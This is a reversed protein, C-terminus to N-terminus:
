ALSRRLRRLACKQGTGWIRMISIIRLRWRHAERRHWFRGESSVRVRRASHRVGLWEPLLRQQQRLHVGEGPRSSGLLCHRVGRQQHLYHWRRQGPARTSLAHRHQAPHLPVPPLLHRQEPVRGQQAAPVGREQEDRATGTGRFCTGSCCQEPKKRPKGDAKCEDARAERQGLRSVGWPSPVPWAACCRGGRGPRGSPGCSDMLGSPMWRKARWVM